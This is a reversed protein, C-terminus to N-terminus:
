ETEVSTSSHTKRTIVGQEVEGEHLDIITMAADVRKEKRAFHELRGSEM